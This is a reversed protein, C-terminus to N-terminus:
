RSRGGTCQHGDGDGPSSLYHRRTRRGIGLYRGGCRTRDIGGVAARLRGPCWRSRGGTRGGAGFGGPQGGAVFGRQQALVADPPDISKVVAPQRGMDPEDPLLKKQAKLLRSRVVRRTRHLDSTRTVRPHSIIEQYLNTLTALAVHWEASGEDATAEQRLAVRVDQTIEGFLRPAIIVDRPSTSAVSTQAAAVNLMALFIIPTAVQKVM